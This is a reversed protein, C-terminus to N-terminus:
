QPGALREYANHIRSQAAELRERFVPGSADVGMVRRALAEIQADEQPLEHIQQDELIQLLHEVRRMFVYDERLERAASEEIVGAQHLRALAQVTNGTLLDSHEPLHILQLGQVLFEVDRIGGLGTKVDTSVKPSLQQVAKNRMRRISAVIEERDRKLCIREKLVGLLKEGVELNGALPRMKLLAQIEWLMATDRYYALISSCTQALAGARGHPRLRFDVRYAYGEDTHNSLAARLAEMLRSFWVGADPGSPADSEDYVAFVDIDSSYNLEAGGLKGLAMVCLCDAVAEAGEKRMREKLRDWERELAAATVAEALSSLDTTIEEIPYRLCMDRTGIRLIERRRFRRIGNLWEGHSNAGATFSELESRLAAADFRGHLVDPRTVWDLFEPNRVLADALFQSGAFISLLIELRRPQSLLLRYHAASDPLVEVFREWNNLAMDPDPQRKVIDTALVALQAFADLQAGEGALKVLNVLAREVETFGAKTLVRRTLAEPPDRMLLLDVVNGRSPDTLSARGFHREIFARVRATCTEFDVRLAQESSLEQMQEYGMRRALHGFEDSEEAPLFLDVASGRLMRLGNILKRLFLYAEELRASEKADLIGCTTLGKLAEHIRPTRLVPFQKGHLVQLIQVYYEVDVLAGPSFKANFAEGSAKTEFQRERLRQLEEMDIAQSEYVFEDRLREVQAGLAADGAVSRLRTLALREYSLAEGSAAFYRCFSELSCARLGSKGYPRLRLDVHFIGERKAKIFRASDAAVRDFFDANEIPQEGDTKGSDSYVFLLEIDSAYGLAVGGFKGLGFVAWTAELGGVTRPKGFRAALADFVTAVAEQVVRAAVRTLPEALARVDGGTQVLHHLDILFIERDKWQNLGRCREEYTSTGTLAEELRTRLAQESFDMRREEHRRVLPLLAEYQTRIFDEWIFDSAGLIRALDHMATPDAFADLWQERDPHNLVEEVLQEFRSLAAYPDPATTLFYTFQKTLLISLKLRDLRERDTIKGGSADVIDMEDEVYGERTQIRVREVSIGQLALANSLAYLFAPTDQSHIRLTTYAEGGDRMEIEVPYLVAAAQSHLDALRRAVLENVVHKAQSVSDGGQEALTLVEGMRQAISTEWETFSVDEALTGSFQDIICRRRYWREPQAKRRREPHSAGGASGTAYTFVSGSVISFGTAALLGTILSFEGPHDFGIVTCDVREAGKWDILIQAPRDPELSAIAELHRKVTPRDFAEFYGDGLRAIHGEILDLPLNPCAELLETATPKM